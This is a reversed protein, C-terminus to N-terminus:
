FSIPHRAFPELLGSVGLPRAANGSIVYLGNGDCCAKEEGNDNQDLGFLESSILSAIM